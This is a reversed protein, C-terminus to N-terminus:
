DLLQYILGLLFAIAIYFFIRFIYRFIPNRQIINKSSEIVDITPVKPEKYNALRQNMQEILNAKEQSEFALIYNSKYIYLENLWKKSITENALETAIRKTLKELGFSNKSKLIIENLLSIGEPPAKLILNELYILENEEDIQNSLLQVVKGPALNMQKGIIYFWDIPLNHAQFTTVQLFGKLIEDDFTSTKKLYKIAVDLNQIEASVSYRYLASLLKNHNSLGFFVAEELFRGFFLLFIIELCGVLLCLDLTLQDLVVGIICVIFLGASLVYSTILVGNLIKERRCTRCNKTQVDEPLDDLANQQIKHLPIGCKGCRINEQIQKSEILNHVSKTLCEEVFIRQNNTKEKSNKQEITSTYDLTM